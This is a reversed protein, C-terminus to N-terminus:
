YKVAICDIYKLTSATNDFEPVKYVSSEPTALTRVGLATDEEEEDEEEVKGGEEGKVGNGVGIGIGIRV